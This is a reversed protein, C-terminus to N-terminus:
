NADYAVKGAVEISVDKLRLTQLQKNLTVGRLVENSTAKLKLEIGDLQSIDGSVKVELTSEMSGTKVGAVDGKVIEVKTASLPQGNTGLPTVELKLNAPIKNVATATLYVYAGNVLSAKNIDDQWGAETKTYVVVAEPGFALPATFRYEPTLHYQHGLRVTATEQSAKVQNIGFRVQMGERLTTVLKPLNEDEIVQYESADVGPNYRCILVKTDQETDGDASGKVIIAKNDTLAIGQPYTDSSLLADIRGGLPMTSHLTLWIQPNDLDAVIESGTLFEPISNITVTGAETLNIDPDFQGRASTISIGTFGASGSLELTPESPVQLEDINISLQIFGMLSFKGNAFVAYNKADAAASPAVDISTVRFNLRIDGGAIDTLTLQNTSEDFRGSAPLNTCTMRLYDPLDIGVSAIHRVASPLSVNLTLDVGDTGLGVSELAKVADPADFEYNLLSINGEPKLEVGYDAPRVVVGALLRLAEPLNVSFSLGSSKDETLTIPAITVDVPNVGEPQKGFVYDGTETTSILDSDGIKLLDELPIDTTSNGGPLTLQAGGFGLTYDVQDLDYDDNTCGTLAWSGAIALLAMLHHKTMIKKM